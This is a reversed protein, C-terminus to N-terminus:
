GSIRTTLWGTRTPTRLRLRRSALKHLANCARAARNRGAHIGADYWFVPKPGAISRNTIHLALLDVRQVGAPASCLAQPDQVVFRRLGGKRCPEPHAAVQSDLFAQMGEVTSLRRRLYNAPRSRDGPLSTEEAGSKSLLLSFVILCLASLSGRRCPAKM